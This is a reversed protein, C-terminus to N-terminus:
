VINTEIAIIRVLSLSSGRLPSRFSPPLNSSSSGGLSGSGTFGSGIGGGSSSGMGTGYGGSGYGGGGGSNSNSTDRLSRLARLEERQLNIQQQLGAVAKRRRAERRAEAEDHAKRM